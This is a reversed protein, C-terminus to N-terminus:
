RKEIVIRDFHNIVKIPLANELDALATDIRDIRVAAYVQLNMVEADEILIKKASYRNLERIVNSFVEDEFRLLGKRWNLYRGIHKDIRADVTNREADFELVTGAGLRMQGPSQLRLAQGQPAALLPATPSVQQEVHHLAVMGQLVALTFRQPSKRINFRTGLVSVSRSDVNVTFPRVPDGAIDFFAEGRQLSVRRHEASIDVLIESGTNLAIESGDSLTLTKQEGIRTVYRQVNDGAPAAAGDFFVPHLQMGVALLLVAAVAIGVGYRLPRKLPPEANFQAVMDQIDAHEALAEMDALANVTDAFDRQNEPNAYRWQRIAQAQDQGLNLAFMRAVHGAARRGALREYIGTM